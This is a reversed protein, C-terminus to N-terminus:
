AAVVYTCDVEVAVSRKLMEISLVLLGRTADYRLLVGSVDRLPGAAMRVRQGERLFPHASVRLGADVIRRIAEIEADPVLAPADWSEGLIRVLGRAKRVERHGAQDLPEGMFFYGAFMPVQICHRSGGRRSWVEMKPLFPAFGAAVLQDFVLQECHSRTWLVRWEAAGQAVATGGLDM